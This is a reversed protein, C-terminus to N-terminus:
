QRKKQKAPPKASSLSSVAYGFILIVGGLFLWFHEMAAAHFLVLTHLSEVQELVFVPLILCFGVRLWASGGDM